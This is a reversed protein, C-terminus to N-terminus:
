LGPIQLSEGAIVGSGSKNNAVRLAQLKVGYRQAIGSLTEGRRVIHVRAGSNRRATGAPVARPSPQLGKRKVYRKIGSFIGRAM